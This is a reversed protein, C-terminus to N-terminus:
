RLGAEESGRGTRGATKRRGGFSCLCIVGPGRITLEAGETLAALPPGIRLTAYTELAPPWRNTLAFSAFGASAPSDDLPGGRRVGCTLMLFHNERDSEAETLVEM